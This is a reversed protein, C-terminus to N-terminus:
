DCPLGSHTLFCAKEAALRTVPPTTYGTAEQVVGLRVWCSRDYPRLGHLTMSIIGIALANRVAEEEAVVEGVEIAGAGVEAAEEAMIVEKSDM